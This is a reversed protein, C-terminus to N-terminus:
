YQGPQPLQIVTGSYLGKADLHNIAVTANVWADAKSDPIGFQRALDFLNLNDGEATYTSPYSGTATTTPTPTPSPTATPTSTSALTGTATYSSNSGSPTDAPLQLVQGISILNASALNNLNVVETVWAMGNSVGFSGAIGLLTDGAQVTYTAPTTSAAQSASTNSSTDTAQSTSGGSPTGNPLTLVEGVVITNADPLNNLSVVQNVWDTMSASSIGLNIAIGDLTDGAQVTYTNPAAAAISPPGFAVLSAGLLLAGVVVPSLWRRLLCASLATFRPTKM